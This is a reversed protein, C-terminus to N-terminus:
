SGSDLKWWGLSEQLVDKLKIEWENTEKKYSIM